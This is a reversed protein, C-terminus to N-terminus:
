DNFNDLLRVTGEKNMGLEVVEATKISTFDIAKNQIEENKEEGLQKELMKLILAMSVDHTIAIVRLTKGDLEKKNFRSLKYFAKTVGTLRKMVEGLSEIKIASDEKLAWQELDEKTAKLYTGYPDKIGEEGKSATFKFVNVWHTDLLEALRRYERKAHIIENKDKGLGIGESELGELIIEASEETRSTPSFLIIVVENERDITDALKSAVELLETRGEPTIIGGDLEATKDESFETTPFLKEVDYGLEELTAKVKEPYKTQGHRILDIIVSPKFEEKELSPETSDIVPGKEFDNM